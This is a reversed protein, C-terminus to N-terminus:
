YGFSSLESLKEHIEEESMHLMKMIKSGNASCQIMYNCFTCVEDMSLVGEYRDFEVLVLNDAIDSYGCAKYRNVTDKYYDRINREGVLSGYKMLGGDKDIVVGMQDIMFGSETYISGFEVRLPNKM